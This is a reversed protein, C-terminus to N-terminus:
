LELEPFREKLRQKLEAPIPTSKHTTQDVNVWVAEGCVILTDQAHHFIAVSFTLSSQGLRGIGVAIDVLNDFSASTKYEVLTKATYFDTGTRQAQNKYDYDIDRFLEIIGIDYYNLYNASSVVGQPDVDSWRVRITHFFNFNRREM